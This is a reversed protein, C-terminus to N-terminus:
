NWLEENNILYTENKIDEDISDIVDNILSSYLNQMELPNELNEYIKEIINKKRECINWVHEDISNKALFYWANVTNQQGMRHCRDEAQQNIAPCWDMECFLVNSAATLNLGISGIKLSCIILRCNPDKQFRRVNSEIDDEAFVQAANPYFESLSRQIERHYAFVVLKQNSSLFEDIWQKIHFLKQKAIFQRLDSIKTVKEEKSLLSFEKIKEKYSTKNSIEIPIITRIKEPLEKEVDKKLRRLFFGERLKGALVDLNSAGSHDTGWNTKQPSCFKEIFYEENEFHEELRRLIKLQPILELPKNLVATGTLLFRYEVHNIIDFCHKTRKSDPNKLYHSEDFIISKPKIKKIIDVNNHVSEYNVIFVDGENIKTKKGNLKITKKGTVHQIEDIWNFKLSSPCVIICPYANVLHVSSISQVTKGLGMEDALIARKNLLLFLTGIEQFPKLKIKLKETNELGKFMKEEKLQNLYFNIHRLAQRDIQIQNINFWKFITYINKLKIKFIIENENKEIIEDEIEKEFNKCYNELAFNGEKILLINECNEDITETDYDPKEIEDFPIDYDELFDKYKGLILWGNHLSKSNWKSDPKQFLIKIKQRDKGDIFADAIDWERLSENLEILYRLANQIVTRRM